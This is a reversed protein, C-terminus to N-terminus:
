IDSTLIFDWNINKMGYALVVATASSSQISSLVMDLPSKEPAAIMHTAGEVPGEMGLERCPGHQIHLLPLVQGTSKMILDKKGALSLFSIPGTIEEIDKRHELIINAAFSYINLNCVPRIPIFPFKRILRVVRNDKGSPNMSIAYARPCTLYHKILNKRFMKAPLRQQRYSPHVKLDCLYWTKLVGQALRLERLVGCGAAVIKGDSKAVQFFPIGLREFFSFYSSGHNIKFFDEGYPYEAVSELEQLGESYESGDEPTLKLIEM